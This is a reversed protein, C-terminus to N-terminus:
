EREASAIQEEAREAEVRPDGYVPRAQRQLQEWDQGRYAKLTFAIQEDLAAPSRSFILPRMDVEWGPLHDGDLLADRQEVTEVYFIALGGPRGIFHDHYLALPLDMDAVFDNFQRNAQAAATEEPALAYVLFCRPRRTRAQSRMAFELGIIDVSVILIGWPLHPGTTFDGRAGM